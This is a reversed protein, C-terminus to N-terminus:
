LLEWVQTKKTNITIFFLTEVFARGEYGKRHALVLIITYLLLAENHLKIHCKGSPFKQNRRYSHWEHRV